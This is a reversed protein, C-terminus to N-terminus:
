RCPVHARPRAQGRGVAVLQRAQPANADREIKSAPLPGKEALEARLWALTDAHAALWPDGERAFYDRYDQMRFGFLPWDDLPILAAEHAWYERYPGRRAFTLKDLSAKDYGGLRAFVPLYHSRELVNM